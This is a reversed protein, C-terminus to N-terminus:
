LARGWVLGRVRYIYIIKEFRLWGSRLQDNALVSLRFFLSSFLIFLMYPTHNPPTRRIRPGVRGPRCLCFFPEGLCSCSALTRSFIHNPGVVVPHRTLLAVHRMSAGQRFRARIRVLCNSLAQFNQWLLELFNVMLANNNYNTEQKGCEKVFM